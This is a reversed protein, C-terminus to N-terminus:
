EGVVSSVKIHQVLPTKEDIGEVVADMKKLRKILKPLMELTAQKANTDHMLVVPADYARIGSMARKLMEKVTYTKGEADGNLANWDYYSVGESDLFRICEKMSVKSVTNSSGGPFRYYMPKEGTVSELYDQIKHFDEEFAELSAYMGDYDHAYSHMALTHGEEVIRRYMEVSHADTKAICFFTATMGEAELLDLIEGTHDSPGDDFTLYVHKKQDANEEQGVASPSVAQVENGDMQAEEEGKEETQQETEQGLDDLDKSDGAKEALAMEKLEERFSGPAAQANIEKVHNLEKELQGVRGFLIICLIIPLLVLVWLVAVLINHLLQEKKRSGRREDNLFDTTKKKM